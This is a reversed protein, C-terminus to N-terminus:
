TICQIWCDVSITAQELLCMTYRMPSLKGLELQETLGIWTRVSGSFSFMVSIYNINMIYLSRCVWYISFHLILDPKQYKLGYAWSKDCHTHRNESGFGWMGPRWESLKATWWYINQSSLWGCCYFCSWHDSCFILPAYQDKQFRSSVM